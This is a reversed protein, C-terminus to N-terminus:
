ARISSGTSFRRLRFAAVLLGAGFLISFLGILWIVGLVTHAPWLFLV